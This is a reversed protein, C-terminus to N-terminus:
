ARPPARSIRAVAAFLLDMGGSRPPSAGRPWSITAPASQVPAFLSFLSSIKTRIETGETEEQEFPPRSAAESVSEQGQLLDTRHDFGNRQGRFSEPSGFSVCPHHSVFSAESDHQDSPSLWAETETEIM